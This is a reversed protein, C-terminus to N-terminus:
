HTNIRYTICDRCGAASLPCAQTGRGKSGRSWLCRGGDRSKGTLSAVDCQPTRHFVTLHHPFFLFRLFFPPPFPLIAVDGPLTGALSWQKWERATIVAQALHYHRAQQQTQGSINNRKVHNQPLGLKKSMQGHLNSDQYM